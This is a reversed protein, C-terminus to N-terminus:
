EAEQKEAEGLRRQDHEIEEGDDSRAEEDDRDVQGGGL